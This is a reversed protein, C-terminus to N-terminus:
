KRKLIKMCTYFYVIWTIPWPPGCLQSVEPSGCKGSIRGESPSTILEGGTSKMVLDEKMIDKNCNEQKVRRRGGKAEQETKELKWEWRKVM